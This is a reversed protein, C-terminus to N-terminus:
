AAQGMAQNCVITLPKGSETRVHYGLSALIERIKQHRMEQKSM